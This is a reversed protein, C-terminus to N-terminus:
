RRTERCGAARAEAATCFWRDGQQRELHIQRYWKGNPPHFICAGGWNINGKIACDPAPPMAGFASLTLGRAAEPTISRRSGLVRSAQKRARWDAPNVFSGKWLGAAAQQAAAQEHEYRSDTALAWGQKVMQRAPDVGAVECVGLWRQYRTMLRTECAMQKGDVLSSLQRRADMGCTWRRGAADLCPQDAQPADIGDLHVRTSGVTLTDGDIAKAVGTLESAHGPAAPAALIAALVAARILKSM